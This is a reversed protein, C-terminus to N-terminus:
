SYLWYYLHLSFIIFIIQVFCVLHLFVRNSEIFYSYHEKDVIGRLLNPSLVMGKLIILFTYKQKVDRPITRNLKFIIAGGGVSLIVCYTILVSILNYTTGM